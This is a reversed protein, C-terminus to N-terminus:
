GYFKQSAKFLGQKGHMIFPNTLIALSNKKNKNKSILGILHLAERTGPVPPINKDFDILKTSGPFRKDLYIKIADKLKPIPESPPYKGWDDFFKDFKDRIFDPPPLQPEGISMKLIKLKPNHSKGDLLSALNGFMWNKLVDFDQNIM